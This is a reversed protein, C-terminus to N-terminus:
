ISVCSVSVISQSTFALFNASVRPSRAIIIESSDSSSFVGLLVGPRVRFRVRHIPAGMNAKAATNMRAPAGAAVAAGTNVLL